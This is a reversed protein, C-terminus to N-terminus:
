FDYGNTEKAYQCSPKSSQKFTTEPSANVEQVSLFM